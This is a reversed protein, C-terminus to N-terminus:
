LFLFASDKVKKFFFYKSKKPVSKLDEPEELGLIIIYTKRNDMAWCLQLKTNTRLSECAQLKLGSTRFCYVLLLRFASDRNLHM